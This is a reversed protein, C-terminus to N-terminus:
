ALRQRIHLTVASFLAVALLAESLGLWRQLGTSSGLHVLGETAYLWVLLAVWRYTYLRYRWLGALVPLLPLVKVAWTGHGTPALWLEWALGLGILGLTLGLALARSHRVFASPPPPAGTAPDIVPATHADTTAQRHDQPTADPQVHAGSGTAVGVPGDPAGGPLPRSSPSPKM